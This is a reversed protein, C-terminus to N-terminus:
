VSRRQSDIFMKALCCLLSNCIKPMKIWRSWTSIFLLVSILSWTWTCNEFYVSCPYLRAVQRFGFVPLAITKSFNKRLFQFNRKVITKFVQKKGKLLQVVFVFRAIENCGVAICLQSFLKQRDLTCQRYTEPRSFWDPLSLVIRSYQPQFLKSINAFPSSTWTGTWLVHLCAM